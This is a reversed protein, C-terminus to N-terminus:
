FAVLDCLWLSTGQEEVHLYIQDRRVDCNRDGCKCRRINDGHILLRRLGRPMSDVHYVSKTVKRPMRTGVTNNYSFFQM